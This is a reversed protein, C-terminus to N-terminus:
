RCAALLGKWGGRVAQKVLEAVPGFMGDGVMEEVLQFRDEPTPALELIRSYAECARAFSERQATQVPLRACLTHACDHVIFDAFPNPHWFYDPTVYCHTDDSWGATVAEGGMLRLGRSHLYLNALRWASYDSTVELLAPEITDAQLLVMTRELSRLLDAQEQVSFLARVIPEVKSRRIEALDVLLYPQVPLHGARRRMESVLFRRLEPGHAPAGQICPQKKSM